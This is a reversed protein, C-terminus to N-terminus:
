SRWPRELLAVTIPDAAGDALGSSFGCCLTLSSANQICACSTVHSVSTVIEHEDILRVLGRFGIWENVAQPWSGLTETHRSSSQDLGRRSEWRAHGLVRCVLERLPQAAPCPLEADEWRLPPSYVHRAPLAAPSVSDVRCTPRTQWSRRRALTGPPCNGCPRSWSASRTPTRQSM